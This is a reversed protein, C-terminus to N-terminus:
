ETYNVGTIAGPVRMPEHTIMAIGSSPDREDIPTGSTAAPREPLGASETAPTRIRRM